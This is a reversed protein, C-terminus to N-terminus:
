PSPGEHSRLMWEETAYAIGRQRAAQVVRLQFRAPIRNNKAWKHVSAVNAGIEDALAARTPWENLLTRIASDTSMGAVSISTEDM